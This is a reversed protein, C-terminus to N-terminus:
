STKEFYNVADIIAKDIPQYKINLAKISKENTFYNNVMLAKMNVSSLNTKFNFKRLVDGIGGLINLIFKPIKVMVPKQNTIRNVKRFFDKYTLNENALLYKEGYNASKICKLIGQSVDKVHVFNKGGPPYFLVKKGLCMLIIKGSSPKSDNAGLMFTPNVIITEIQHEERLMFEEALLKSKAYFSNKYLHSIRKLENGPEKQSGYGMTNATSVFIFRKVGCQIAAQFLKRTANYNIKWYEYPDPISQDTLAAIHIVCDINRLASTFDMFLKGEVLSLNEHANGFFRHKDRVLGKVKYGENLLDECLNTGLLGNIGTVFIKDM